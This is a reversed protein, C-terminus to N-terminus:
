IVVIKAYVKAAGATMATTQKVTVTTGPKLSTIASTFVVNTEYVLATSASDTLTQDTGKYPTWSISVAGGTLAASVDKIAWASVITHMNGDNPVPVSLITQLGDILAVGTAPTEATIPATPVSAEAKGTVTAIQIGNGAALAASPVKSVSPDPYTGALDGGAPGSPIHLHRSIKAM